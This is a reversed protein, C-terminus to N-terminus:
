EEYTEEKAVKVAPPISLPRRLFLILLIGDLRLLGAPVLMGPFAGGLILGEATDHVKCGDWPEGNGEV